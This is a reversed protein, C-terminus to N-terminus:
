LDVNLKFYQAVAILLGAKGLSENQKGTNGKINLFFRNVPLELLMKVLHQYFVHVTFCIWNPLVFYLM